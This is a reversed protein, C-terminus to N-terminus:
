LVHGVSSRLGAHFHGHKTLPISSVGCGACKTEGQAATPTGHRLRGAVSPSFRCQVDAVGNCGSYMGESVHRESWIKLKNDDPDIFAAEQVASWRLFANQLLNSDTQSVGITAGTQCSVHGVFPASSPCQDTNALQVIPM